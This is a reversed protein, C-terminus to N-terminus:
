IDPKIPFPLRRHLHQVIEVFDKENEPTVISQRIFFAVLVAASDPKFGDALIAKHIEHVAMLSFSEVEEDQPKPVVDSPLEMDYLYVVDPCLLGKEGPFEDGTCNMITMVDRSCVRERVLSEPLSAEEQAEEVITQLPSVGAKVGGAVTTDLKGGSIYLHAARRAIWVRLGDDARVYCVLHAGCSTVGFLSTAFREIRVPYNAGLLSFYESHRGGLVHFGGQKICQDILKQFAQNVAAAIDKSDSPVVVTVSRPKEHRVSFDDTLPMGAVTAPLM